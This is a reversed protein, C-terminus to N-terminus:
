KRSGNSFSIGGLHSRAEALPGACIMSLPDPAMVPLMPSAKTWVEQKLMTKLVDTESTISFVRVDELVDVSARGHIHLDATLM